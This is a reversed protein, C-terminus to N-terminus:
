KKRSFVLGNLKIQPYKRKILEGITEASQENQALGLLAIAKSVASPSSAEIELFPPIGPHEDIEFKWQKYAKKYAFLTRKKEYHMTQIFGLQKLFDSARAFGEPGAIAFEIEKFCKCGKKIGKYIKYVVETYKKGKHPVFERVRLLDRKKRISQGPFDFYRVRVLGEFLKQPKPKLTRIRAILKRVNIGLIKREIEM